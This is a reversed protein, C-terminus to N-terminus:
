LPGRGEMGGRHLLQAIFDPANVVTVQAIPLTRMMDVCHLDMYSVDSFDLCVSKQQSMLSRCEQELVNVWDATIKGELRLTISPGNTRM